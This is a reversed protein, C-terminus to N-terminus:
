GILKAKLADFEEQTLAGSDLLQKAQAVQETPSPATTGAVQKIYNDQAAKIQALHDMRRQQMGKGRAVLYVLATIFPFFVLFVIWVAKKVGSTDPDSFLDSIISWLVMLYAFFLFIVFAYYLIEWFSM